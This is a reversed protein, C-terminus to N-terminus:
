TGPLAEAVYIQAEAMYVPAEAVYESAIALYQTLFAFSHSVPGWPVNILLMVILFMFPLKEAYM